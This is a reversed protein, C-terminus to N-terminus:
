EAVKISNLEPCSNKSHGIIGCHYCLSTMKEYEVKQFIRGQIGEIWVGKPLKKDLNIRVCVRAYERKGWRLSNGDLFLPTGIVSAIRAINEEDWCSQPLFPFRIWVPSTLGKLSKPSFFTSWKDIGIIHNSIYWPGGSLVEEMSEANSFSCLIWDLVLTTLHFKEYRSWQRRLELSCVSFPVDKGLVKILLSKELIQTNPTERDVNMKVALGDETM